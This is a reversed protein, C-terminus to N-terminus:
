DLVESDSPRITDIRFPTEEDQAGTEGPAIEPASFDDAPLSALTRKMFNAWIPAAARGGVEGSGLSRRMDDYGVWVCGVLQPTYGIFWADKYDNSTGTKGAAPRGISAGAGTGYSIVGKLMSTLLYSSQPSMVEEGEPEHSELIKKRSDTVYKITIPTARVGGNAFPTYAIAMELPTTSISGLAMTLDRPIDSKIGLSRAFTIVRDIGVTELLRVTVVNRSFALAERLTTPGYHKHDYNEPRWEGGPGGPYSIPEDNIVSSPTFGNELASAYIVPKFSSGPQRKALVARNFESTSFSFGGVMARIFGTEPEIAVVAGEVEPEQDLSFSVPKGITKFRVWIIDGTHLIDTLRFNKLRQVKGTKSDIVTSAWLADSIALTGTIGRAKVVAEKPSVSLVVGTSIDGVSGSFSVTPASDNKEEEVKEKRGVPGRWGKRKDVERLGDQLAKFRHLNLFRGFLNSLSYIVQTLM